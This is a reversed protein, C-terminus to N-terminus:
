PLDDSRLQAYIALLRARKEDVCLVIVQLIRNGLKKEPDFLAHGYFSLNRRIKVPHRIGDGRIGRASVCRALHECYQGVEEGQL